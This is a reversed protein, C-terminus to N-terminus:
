FSGNTSLDNFSQQQHHMPPLFGLSSTPPPLYPASLLATSPVTNTYYNCQLSGNSILNNNPLSNGIVRSPSSSSCCSSQWSLHRSDDYLGPDQQQGSTTSRSMYGQQNTLPMLDNKNCGQPDEAAGLLHPHYSRSPLERTDKYVFEDPPDHIGDHVQTANRALYAEPLNPIQHPRTM